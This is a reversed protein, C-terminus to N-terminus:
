PGTNPLTNPLAYANAADAKAKRPISLRPPPLVFNPPLSPGEPEPSKDKAITHLGNAIDLEREWNRNREKALESTYEYATIWCGNFFVSGNKNKTGNELGRRPEVIVDGRELEERERKEEETVDFKEPSNFISDADDDEGNGDGDDDEELDRKRKKSPGAVANERSTPASFALPCRLIVPRLLVQMAM